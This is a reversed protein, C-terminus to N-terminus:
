RSTKQRNPTVSNFRDHFEQYLRRERENESLDLWMASRHQCWQNDQVRTRFDFVVVGLVGHGKCTKAILREHKDFFHNTTADTIKDLMQNHLPSIVPSNRRNFGISIDLAIIGLRQSKVIQTAADKIRKAGQQASKIRKAAVGFPVGAVVCTVDPEEYGIPLLGAKKCVAALYLEFQANRGPSHQREQQPLVNDYLLREVVARFAANESDSGLQELIFGLQVMDRDSELAIWFDPTGFEHSRNEWVKHMRMFRSGPKPEFGLKCLQAIVYAANEIRGLPENSEIDDM